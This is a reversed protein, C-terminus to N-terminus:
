YLHTIMIAISLHHLFSPIFSAINYNLINRISHHIVLQKLPELVKINPDSVSVFVDSMPVLALLQKLTRSGLNTCLGTM